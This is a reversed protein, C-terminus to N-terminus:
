TKRRASWPATRRIGKERSTTATHSGTCNPFQEGTRCSPDDIYLEWERGPDYATDYVEQAEAVSVLLEKLVGGGNFGIVIEEAPIVTGAGTASITIDGQRVQATQLAGAEQAEANNGFPLSEPLSSCASLLAGSVAILAVLYVWGRRM